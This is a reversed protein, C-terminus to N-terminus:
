LVTSFPQLDLTREPLRGGAYALFFYDMPQPM